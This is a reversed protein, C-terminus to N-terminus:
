VCLLGLVFAGFHAISEELECQRNQQTIRGRGM